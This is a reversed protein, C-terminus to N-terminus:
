VIASKGFLVNNGISLHFYKLGGKVRKCTPRIIVSECLIVFNGMKISALDARLMIKEKFISNTGVQINDSGLITNHRSVKTNTTTVIYDSPNFFRPDCEM